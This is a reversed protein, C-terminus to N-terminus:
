ADRNSRDDGLDRPRVVRMPQGDRFEFTLRGTFNEAVARLYARLGDRAYRDLESVAQPEAM